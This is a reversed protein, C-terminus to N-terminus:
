EQIEGVLAEWTISFPDIVMLDNLQM